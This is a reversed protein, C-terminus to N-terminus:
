FCICAVKVDYPLARSLLIYRKVTLMTPPIEEARTIASVQFPCKQTKTAEQTNLSSFVGALLHTIAWFIVPQRNTTLSCTVRAGREHYIWKM